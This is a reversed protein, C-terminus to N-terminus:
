FISAAKLLCLLGYLLNYSHHNCYKKYIYIDIYMNINYIHKHIYTYIYIYIHIYLIYM